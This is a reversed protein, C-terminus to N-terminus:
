DNGSRRRRSRDSLGHAVQVLGVTLAGLFWGVILAVFLCAWTFPAM